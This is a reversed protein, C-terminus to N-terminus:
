RQPSDKIADTGIEPTTRRPFVGTPYASAQGRPRVYDTTYRSGGIFTHFWPHLVLKKGYQVQDEPKLGAIKTMAYVTFLSNDSLQVTKPYGVGKPLSDDRIIIEMEGPMNTAVVTAM